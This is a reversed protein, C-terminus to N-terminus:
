TKERSTPSLVESIWWDIDDEWADAWESAMAPHEFPGTFIFGTSPTGSVVIYM